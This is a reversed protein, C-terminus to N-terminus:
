ASELRTRVFDLVGKVVARSAPSDDVIDLAHPATPQNVLTIPLNRRLAAAAFRDLSANLGPTTDQGARVILLPVDGPVDDITRGATPNAYHWLAQGQAVETHGDLDMALAWLLAACRIGYDHADMLVGVANPGNGSQAIVALRGPAVQLDSAHDRVHQLVTRTDGAPDAGTQYTIAAVGSAALLQAWSIYVDWDSLRAGFVQQGGLDSYGAIIVAAPRPGIGGAGYIRLTLPGSADSAFQVESVPVNEMGAIEYLVRRTTMPHRM